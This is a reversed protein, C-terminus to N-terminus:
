SLAIKPPQFYSLYPTDYVQSLHNFVNIYHWSILPDIASTYESRLPLTETDQGFPGSLDKSFNGDPDSDKEIDGDEDISSLPPFCLLPSNYLNDSHLKKNQILQEQFTNIMSGAQINNPSIICSFLSFVLFILLRHSLSKM